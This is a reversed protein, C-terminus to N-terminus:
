RRRCRAALACLGTAALAIMVPVMIYVYRAKAEFLMNFAIIGIVSLLMAATASSEDRKLGFAAFPCLSLLLLWIAQRVTHTAPYREGDSYVVSRMWASVAEDKLPLDNRAFDIGWAFGGDAFNVLAKRLLHDAMGSVGYAKVREWSTQLCRATRVEGPVSLTEVQDAYNYAGDNEDNLGMKMYHAFSLAHGQDLEIGIARELLGQAPVYVLAFMVALMALYAASRKARRVIVAALECLVIAILPISAQPKILFALAGLAGLLLAGPLRDRMRQYVWLLLVPFLLATGDSYPVLFWPSLGVLLAYTGWALLAAAGATASDMFREAARRILSWMLFGCATNMVCQMLILILQGREMGFEMGFCMPLRLLSGYLGVLALNNPCRSFYEVSVMAPERYAFAWAGELVPKADWVSYFYTHYTVFVQVGLLLVSLILLLRWGAGAIVQRFRLCLAAALAFAGAALLLLLPNSLLFGGAFGKQYFLVPGYAFVAIVAVLATVAACLWATAAHLRKM